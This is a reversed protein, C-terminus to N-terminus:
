GVHSLGTKENQKDKPKRKKWPCMVKCALEIYKKHIKIYAESDGHQLVSGDLKELEALCLNLRRTSIGGLFCGYYNRDCDDIFGHKCIIVDCRDETSTYGKSMKKSKSARMPPVSRGDHINRTRFKKKRALSIVM